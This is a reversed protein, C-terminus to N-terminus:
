PPPMDCAIFRVIRWAGDPQRRFVDMGAEIGTELLSGDPARVELTWYLRVVALDGSTLVEKIDASYRYRRDPDALIGRLQACLHDFSRDGGGRNTALLDPAFLECVGDRGGTNFAETWRALAARVAAEVDEAHAPVPGLLLPVIPLAFISRAM